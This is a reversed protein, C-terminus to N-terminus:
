GEEQNDSDVPKKAHEDTTDQPKFKGFENHVDCCVEYFGDDVEILHMSVDYDDYNTHCTSCCSSTLNYKKKIAECGGLYKDTTDKSVTHKDILELIENIKIITNSWDNSTGYKRADETIIKLSKLIKEIDKKLSEVDVSQLDAENV